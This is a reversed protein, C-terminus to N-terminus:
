RRSRRPPPSSAAGSAPAPADRRPKPGALYDTSYKRFDLAWGERVIRENLDESGVYCVALLRRIPRPRPRHVRSARKDQALMGAPETSSALSSDM